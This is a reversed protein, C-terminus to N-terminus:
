TKEWHGEGLGSWGTGNDYVYVQKPRGIKKGATWEDRAHPNRTKNGGKTKIGYNAM